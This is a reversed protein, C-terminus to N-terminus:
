RDGLVIIKTISFKGSLTFMFWDIIYFSFRYIRSRQKKMAFQESSTCILGHASSIVHLSNVSHRVDCVTEYIQLFRVTEMKLRKSVIAFAKGLGCNEATCLEHDM